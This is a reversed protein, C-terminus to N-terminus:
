VCIWGWVLVGYANKRIQVVACRFSYFLFLRKRCKLSYMCLPCHLSCRCKNSEKSILFQFTYFSFVSLKVVVYKEWERARKKTKVFQLIIECGSLFVGETEDCSSYTGYDLHDSQDIEV